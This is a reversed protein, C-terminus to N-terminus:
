RLALAEVVNEVALPPSVLCKAREADTLRPLVRAMSAQALVVADASGCADRLAAAVREDHGAQDGAMLTAYADEVLTATVESARGPQSARTSPRGHGTLYPHRQHATREHGILQTMPRDFVVM